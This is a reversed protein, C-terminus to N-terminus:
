RSGPRLSAVGADDVLRRRALDACRQELANLGNVLVEADEVSLGVLTVGELTTPQDTAVEVVTWGVRDPRIDFPLLM